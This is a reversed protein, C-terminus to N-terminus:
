IGEGFLEAEVALDIPPRKSLGKVLTCTSHLIKDSQRESLHSVLDRDVLHRHEDNPDRTPEHNILADIKRLTTVKVGAIAEHTGSYKALIAKVEARVDNGLETQPTM